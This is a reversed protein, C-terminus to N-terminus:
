ERKGDGQKKKKKQGPKLISFNPKQLQAMTWTILPIDSLSSWTSLDGGCWEGKKGLSQLLRFCLDTYKPTGRKLHVYVYYMCKFSLRHHGESCNM